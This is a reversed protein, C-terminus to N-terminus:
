DQTGYNKGGMLPSLELICNPQYTEPVYCGLKRCATEKISGVKKKASNM